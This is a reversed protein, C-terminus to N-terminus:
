APVTSRRRVSPAFRAAVDQVTQGQVALVEPLHLALSAVLDAADEPRQHLTTTFRIGGRGPPVAPFCSANVYFGDARLRRQLEMVADDAGVPVFAIPTEEGSVCPLEAEDLRQRTARIRTRLTQQRDRVEDTAHLRASALAAGLSAPPVPGGFMLTPGTMLVQDREDPDGFVLAGGGAAFSKSLSVAVVQRPHPGLIELAHGRGHLGTWGVGHADDIYLRLQEHAVLLQELCGMPALDGHMSYVGDALYWIREHDSALRRVARDLAALDNHPVTVLRAGRCAVMQAATRVSEHVHRDLIMADRESVLTPLASLHGLTTTPTVITPGGFIWELWEELEEYLGLSVYARSSSFTTGYRHVADAAAAKIRPDLELGLYSCSGFHRLPRGDITITRGDLMEDDIHRHTVGLTRATWVTRTIQDLVTRRGRTRPTM